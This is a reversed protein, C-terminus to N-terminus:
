ARQQRLQRAHQMAIRAIWAPEIRLALLYRFRSSYLGNQETKCRKLGVIRSDARLKVPLERYRESLVTNLPPSEPSPMLPSLAAQMEQYVAKDFKFGRGSSLM